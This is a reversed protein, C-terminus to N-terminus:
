SALVVGGVEAGKKGCVASCVSCELKLFAPVGLTIWGNEKPDLVV